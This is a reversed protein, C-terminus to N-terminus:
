NPPSPPKVEPRRARPQRRGPARAPLEGVDSRIAGSPPPRPRGCAPAGRPELALLPRPRTSWRGGVMTLVSEIDGSRRSRCRSTTRRCCRSTPSSAPKSRGASTTTTRSGPAAGPTSACRRSRAHADRGPRADGPREGDQRRPVVAAVHVPQVLAVRHADTGGGISARRAPRATVVPPVRRAADPGAQKVFAEGGFYMADQVTWGVGLAKM